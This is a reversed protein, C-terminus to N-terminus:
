FTPTRRLTGARRTRARRGATIDRISHRRNRSAAPRMASDGSVPRAAGPLRVAAAPFAVAAAERRNRRGAPSLAPPPYNGCLGESNRACAQTLAPSYGVLLSRGRRCVSTSTLSGQAAARSCFVFDLDSSLTGQCPLPRSLCVSPAGHGDRARCPLWFRYEAAM